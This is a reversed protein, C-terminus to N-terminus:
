RIYYYSLGVKLLVILYRRGIILIKKAHQQLKYCNEVVTCNPYYYIATVPKHLGCMRRTQIM